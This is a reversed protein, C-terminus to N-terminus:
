AKMSPDLKVAREEAVDKKELSKFEENLYVDEMSEDQVKKEVGPATKMQTKTRLQLFRLQLFTESEQLQSSLPVTVTGGISASLAEHTSPDSVMTLEEALSHKVGLYKDMADDTDPVDQKQLLQSLTRDRHIKKEKKRDEKELADFTDHIQIEHAQQEKVTKALKDAPSEQILEAMTPDKKIRHIEEKDKMEKEKFPEQIRVTEYTQEKVQKAVVDAPTEGSSSLQLQSLNKDTKLRRLEDKSKKENNGFVEHIQINQAAEREVEKSLKDAPVKIRLVSSGTQMLAVLNKNHRVKREEKEDNNELNEFIEHIHLNQKQEARVEEALDHAPLQSAGHGCVVLSAFTITRRVM